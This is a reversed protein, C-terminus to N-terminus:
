SNNGGREFVDIFSLLFASASPPAAATAPASATVPMVLAAAWGTWGYMWTESIVVLGDFM